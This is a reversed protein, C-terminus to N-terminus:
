KRVAEPANRTETMFAAISLPKPEAAPPGGVLLREVAEGMSRERAQTDTAVKEKVAAIVLKRDAAGPTWDAEAAIKGDRYLVVSGSGPYVTLYRREDLQRRVFGDDGTKWAPDTRLSEVVRVALESPTPSWWEAVDRGRDRVLECGAKADAFATALATLGREPWSQTPAALHVGLLLTLAPLLVRTAKLGLRVPLTLYSLLKRFMPRDEKTPSLPQALAGSSFLHRKIQELHTLFTDFVWPDTPYETGWRSVSQAGDTKITIEYARLPSPPDPPPEVAPMKGVLWQQTKQDWWWEQSPAYAADGQPPATTTTSGPATSTTPPALSEEPKNYTCALFNAHAVMQAEIDKRDFEVRSGDPRLLSEKVTGDTASPCDTCLPYAVGPVPVLSEGPLPLREDAARTIRVGDPLKLPPVQQAM